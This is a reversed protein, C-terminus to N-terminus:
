PVVVIPAPMFDEVQIFYLGPPIIGPVHIKNLNKIVEIHITTGQLTIWRVVSQKSVKITNINLLQIDTNQRAPNPALILARRTPLSVTSTNEDFVPDSIVLGLTEDDAQHFIVDEPDVDPDRSWTNKQAWISDPTNNYMAFTNGDNGNNHFINLGPSEDEDIKGFNPQAQSLVTVGWLNGEISHGSVVATNSTPGQFNLGSGGTLPNNDINNNHITNGHFEGHIFGGLQAIGYRNNEITCNSIISQSMGQGLLNTVAIGGAMPFEGIITCNTIRIPLDPFAQNSIGLNIQPFNGNSTNNREFICQDILPSANGNAASNIGSRSNSIFNCQSIEANSNSLTLAGSRYAHGNNKFICSEFLIDVSRIFNGNGEEITVQRLVNGQPYDIDMGRYREQEPIKSILLDSLNIHGQLSLFIEPGLLLSDVDSILLSDSNSLTFDAFITFVTKDENSEIDEPFLNVLESLTFLTGENPTTIQGFGICYCLGFLATLSKNM